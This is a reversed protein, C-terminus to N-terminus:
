RHNAAYTGVAVLAVMVPLVEFSLGAGHGKDGRIALLLLLLGLASTYRLAAAGYIQSLVAAAHRRRRRAALELWGPVESSLLLTPVVVFAIPFAHSWGLSFAVDSLASVMPVSFLACLGLGFSLWLAAEAANRKPGLMPMTNSDCSFGSSPLEDPLM